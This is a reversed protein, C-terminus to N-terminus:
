RAGIGLIQSVYCAFDGAIKRYPQEMIDVEDPFFIWETSLGQATMYRKLINISMIVRNHMGTRLSDADNRHEQDMIAWEARMKAYEICAKLFDMYLDRLDEDSSLKPNVTRKLLMFHEKAVEYSLPEDYSLVFNM